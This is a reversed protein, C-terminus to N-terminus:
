HGVVEYRFPARGRGRHSPDTGLKRVQGIASLDDVVKNITGLSGGPGAMVQALTFPETRDLVWARIDDASVKAARPKAARTPPEAPRGGPRSVSRSRKSGFGLDFGAEALAIDSVGLQRFASVSVGHEAAWGRACAVFAARIAEGDASEAHEIATLLKLREIPDTASGLQHRLREILAEDRATTPDDVFQLYRRM